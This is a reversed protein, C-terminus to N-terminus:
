NLDPLPHRDRRRAPPGVRPRVLRGGPRLVRHIEALRADLDQPNRVGFAITAGAFTGDPFPLRWTPRPWLSSAELTGTRSRHRAAKGRGIVLMEHCFDAGTAELDSRVLEIALKVRGPASM